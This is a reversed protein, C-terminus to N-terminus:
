GFEDDPGDPDDDVGRLNPLSFSRSLLSRERDKVKEYSTMMISSPGPNTCGCATCYRPESAEEQKERRAACNKRQGRRELKVV